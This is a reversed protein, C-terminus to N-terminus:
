AHVERLRGSGAVVPGNDPKDTPQLYRATNLFCADCVEWTRNQSENGEHLLPFADLRHWGTPPTGEACAVEKGCRDCNWKTVPGHSM